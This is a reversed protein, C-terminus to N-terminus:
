IVLKKPLYNHTKLTRNNVRQKNSSLTITLTKKLYFIVIIATTSSLFSTDLIPLKRNNYIFGAM